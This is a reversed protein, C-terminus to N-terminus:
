AEEGEESKAAELATELSTVVEDLGEAATDLTSSDDLSIVELDARASRVKDLVAQIRESTKMETEGMQTEMQPAQRMLLPRAGRGGPNGSARCNRREPVMM